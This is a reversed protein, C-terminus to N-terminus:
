RRERAPKRFVYDDIAERLASAAYNSCHQKSEPLGGLAVMVDVDDLQYADDVTRGTVLVSMMSCAAVASPCGQVKYKVDILVGHEVKISVKFVDGCGADGVTGVGDANDIEGVNRPYFFHDLVPSVYVGSAKENESPM